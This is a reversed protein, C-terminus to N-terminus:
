CCGLALLKFKSHKKALVRIVIQVRHLESEFPCITNTNTFQTPIYQFEKLVSINKKTNSQLTISPVTMVKTENRLGLPQVCFYKFQVMANAWMAGYSQMYGITVMGSLPLVPSTRRSPLCTFQFFNPKTKTPIHKQHPKQVELGPKAGHILQKQSVETSFIFGKRTAFATSDSILQWGESHELMVNNPLVVKTFAFDIYAAYGTSCFGRRREHHHAHTTNSGGWAPVPFLTTRNRLDLQDLHFLLFSTRNKLEYTLNIVNYIHSSRCLM